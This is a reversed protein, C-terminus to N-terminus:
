KFSKFDTYMQKVYSGLQNEGIESALRNISIILKM